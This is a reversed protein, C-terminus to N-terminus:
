KFYRDSVFLMRSGLFPVSNLANTSPVFYEPHYSEGFPLLIHGQETSIQETPRRHLRTLGAHWEDAERDVVPEGSGYKQPLDKRRRFEVGMCVKMDPAFTGQFAPVMDLPSKRVRNENCGTFTIQAM